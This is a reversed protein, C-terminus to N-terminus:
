VLPVLPILPPRILPFFPFTLFAEMGKQQEEERLKELAAIGLGRQPIKKEKAKKSLGNRRGRRRAGNGVLFDGVKEAEFEGGESANGGAM